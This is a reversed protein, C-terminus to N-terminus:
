RQLAGIDPAAGRPRGAQDVPLDPHAVGRGVAASGGILHLNGKAADVFLSGLSESPVSARDRAYKTQLESLPLVGDAANVIFRDLVNYDSDVNAVDAATGLELGAKNADPHFLVNDRVVNKGTTSLFQLGQRAGHAQILTNGLIEMGRPGEAGDGQYNVIGTAHNDYLLNNRVVSSQVGDLNIAGGGRVGNGFIVNDEIIAGTCVGDAAGGAQLWACDADPKEDVDANIQIGCAANDHVINGRIVPRDASNSAYIGHERKSGAAENHDLVLDDSFGAFIGWRRGGAFRGNKITVHNSCLVSVGARAAGIAVLGDITVWFSNRVAINDRPGPAVMAAVGPAFITIPAAQTGRKEDVVFPAYAGDEVVVVDGGHALSVATGIDRCPEARSCVAGAGTPKVYFTTGTAVPPTRPSQPGAGPPGPPPFLAGPSAHARAVFAFACAVLPAVSAAVRRSL